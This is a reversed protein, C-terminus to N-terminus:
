ARTGFVNQFWFASERCFWIRNKDSAFIALQQSDVGFRHFLAVLERLSDDEPFDTKMQIRISEGFGTVCDVDPIESLWDFFAKEDGPSLFRVANALLTVDSM